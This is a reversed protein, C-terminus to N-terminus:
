RIWAHPSSIAPELTERELAPRAGGRNAALERFRTRLGHMAGSILYLNVVSGVVWWWLALGGDSLQPFDLRALVMVPLAFIIWPLVCIYALAVWAARSPSRQHLALWPAVWSLTYLDYIFLTMGALWVAIWSGAHVSWVSTGACMLCGDALLVLTTASGFQRRLALRQGQLVEHASLPTVLILELAGSRRDECFRRSAEHTLWIKLLTHATLAFPIAAVEFWHGGVQVWGCVWLAALSALLLFVLHTKFRERSALWLVPNVPLLRLRWARRVVPSGFQWQGFLKQRRTRGPTDAKDRWSRRVIVAALTLFLWSMAHVLCVSDWFADTYEPKSYNVDFATFCGFSPSPLLFLLPAESDNLLSAFAEGFIPLAALCAVVLFTANTAKRDDTSLASCLMGAALSFFLNNISVLTVRAYEGPTVGGFLLSVAMIPFVALLGYFGNLSTAALKGLVIDYGSLDTLFLLGLTGERREESLCDATTRVGVLLAYLNALVTLVQFLDHGTEAPPSEFTVFYNWAVAAVALLAVLWRVLFTAGRRANVRLERRVIPLTTM